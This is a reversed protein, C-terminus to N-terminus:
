LLHEWEAPRKSPDVIKALREVKKSLNKSMTLEQGLYRDVMLDVHDVIVIKLENITSRRM